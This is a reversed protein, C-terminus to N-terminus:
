DEVIYHAGISEKRAIAGEIIMKACSLMNYYCFDTETELKFGDAEAILGDIIRKGEAMGLPTRVPGAYKTVTARLFDINERMEAESVCKKDSNNDDLYIEDKADRFNKKIHEAARRGFVLCELMSNSALRNAGHVGTSSCEGCAYLGKVNTLADLDTKIGGMLYHQGPRIPIWANPVDVGRARCEGSITPFRKEFFEPTMSSVDLFMKDEGTRNMEKIIERTVIDRPALDALPHKGQMFAEGNSNRLIGGEGRVAESILFARNSTGGEAALTTPHFQVLEMGFIEAGARQAAAIGDGVAGDPNTTTTYLFGSGGTALVVNSCVVVKDEEGNSVIAGCVGDKDTLIDVLYTGLLCDVNKRALTIEGLRRTTERGTADGGCHVIRRCSHGGERTILIEGNENRDFPVDLALLTRIDDPGEKVLTTVADLDCLGAGAKLTDEIHSEFVDDPAIVSAIGGQALWSNSKEISAKTVITVKMSSDLNFATYLGAIGSGVILVDTKIKPLDNFNESLLYRKMINWGKAEIQTM